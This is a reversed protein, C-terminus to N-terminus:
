KGTIYSVGFEKKTRYSAQGFQFRGPSLAQIQFTGVFSLLVLILLWQATM